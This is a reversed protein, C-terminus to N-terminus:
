DFKEALQVAFEMNAWYDPFTYDHEMYKYGKPCRWKLKNGDVCGFDGREFGMIKEAILENITVKDM